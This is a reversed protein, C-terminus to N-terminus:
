FWGIKGQLHLISEIDNLNKLCEIEFEKSFIRHVIFFDGPDNLYGSSKKLGGEVWM